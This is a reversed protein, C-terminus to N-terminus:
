SSDLWQKIRSRRHYLSNIEEVEIMRGINCKPCVGVDIGTLEKLRQEWSKQQQESQQNGNEKLSEVKQSINLLTKCLDIKINRHRNGLFGYHRLRVFRYPLVHLLFRRMFEKVHLIMVKSKNEHAYDRYRFHVHDNEIKIIRHNSIAIRHTYNGLYHIVQEPGAFPKKAYVVWDKRTSQILLEKFRKRDSLPQLDGEFKLEKFLDEIASLFKGRFVKSLVKIPFLFGAKASVWKVEGDNKTLGGGPIIIHLHPHSMLNQGWTHLVAIFGIEAKLNREAVEKLTQSASQFLLDYLLAKNQLILSNFVHPLTFVVHFYEVPLLEDIRAEVWEARALFQCKPCHRNRCSNYSIEEHGCGESDCKRRHGGLKSTRCDIIDQVVKASPAPLPGLLHRYKRFIDAVELKPATVLTTKKHSPEM